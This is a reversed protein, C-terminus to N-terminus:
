QYLAIRQTVKKLYNKTEDYPLEALLHHYVEDPQMKNITKAANRINTSRNENFARAVNGAGTNYAAIMCYLRSQPDTISKLYKSNLIHLYAAGTEVNLPPVYLEEAKMPADIKRIHRNVDHGASSPVVQMLGFAPIHSKADPRFSSESHMIAMIVATDIGWKNSESAAMPLYQDARHNLSKNPLKVTYSVVKKAPKVLQVVETQVKKTETITESDIPNIDKPPLPELPTEPGTASPSVEQSETLAQQVPTTVKPIDMPEATVHIGLEERKREYLSALQILRLKAENLLVQKQNYSRELIFSDPIGTQSMLLRDAQIDLQKMQMDVQEIIFAKEKNEQQQSYNVSAQSINADTLNLTKGNVTLNQQAIAQISNSDADADVLVSITASNNEYDIVKKVTNDVTYEVSKTQDSVEGSGWHEILVNRQQDLDKNYQARWAEYEDLYDNVYQHFEAVKEEMPRNIEEKAQELEAFSNNTSAHSSFVASLISLALLSKHYHKM